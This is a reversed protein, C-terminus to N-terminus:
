VGELSRTKWDSGASPDRSIGFRGWLVSQRQTAGKANKKPLPLGEDLRTPLCVASKGAPSGLEGTSLPWRETGQRQELFYRQPGSPRENGCCPSFHKFYSYSHFGQPFFLKGKLFGLLCVPAM